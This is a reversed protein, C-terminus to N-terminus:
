LSQVGSIDSVSVEMPGIMLQPSGSSMDLESVIGTSAVTTQVASGDSATAAVSLKYVGDPLQTGQANQGNWTFANNGATTQGPASYVVNGNADTVTLTTQTSATGLNYTWAATGGVLPANGNTVTVAKGLYSVANTGAASTGQNILSQLNTNTNIQQEVQSFEVLQQTFQSSDMPSTPDQDKLQTTLLTLFTSFNSTLGSLADSTTTTGNANTAPTTVPPTTVPATTTM